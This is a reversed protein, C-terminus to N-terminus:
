VFVRASYLRKFLKRLGCLLKAKWSEAGHSINPQKNVFEICLLAMLMGLEQVSQNALLKFVHRFIYKSHELFLQSLELCLNSVGLLFVIKKDWHGRLYIRVTKLTEM